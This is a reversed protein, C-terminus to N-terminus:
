VGVYTLTLHILAVVTVGIVGGVCTAAADMVEVGHTQTKTIANYAADYGEKGAAVAFVMIAAVLPYSGFALGFLLGLRIHGQKDPAIKNYLSLLYNM